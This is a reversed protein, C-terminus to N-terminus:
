NILFLTLIVISIVQAVSFIIIDSKKKRLKYYCFATVTLWILFMIVGIPVFFQEEEYDKSDPSSEPFMFAVGLMGFFRGFVGHLIGLFVIIFKKTLKRM